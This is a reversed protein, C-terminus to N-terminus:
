IVERIKEVGSDFPSASACDYNRGYNDTKQVTIGEDRDQGLGRTGVKGSPGTNM